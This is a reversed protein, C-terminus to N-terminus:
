PEDKVNAPNKEEWAKFAYFAADPQDGPAVIGSDWEHGTGSYTLHYYLTQRAKAEVARQMALQIWLGRRGLTQGAPPTDPVQRDAQIKELRERHYGFETLYLDAKM